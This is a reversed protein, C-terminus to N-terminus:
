PSSGGLGTPQGEGLIAEWDRRRPEVGFETIALYIFAALSVVGTPFHVKHADGRRVAGDTGVLAPGIHVHPFDPTNSTESHWHYAVIEDGTGRLLAYAYETIEPSCQPASPDHRVIGVTEAFRLLLRSGTLRARGGGALSLNEVSTLLPSVPRPVIVGTSVCSIVLQQRQRHADLATRVRRREM